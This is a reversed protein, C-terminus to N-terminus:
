ETGNLKAQEERSSMVATRWTGQVLGAKCYMSYILTTPQPQTQEQPLECSAVAARHLCEANHSQQQALEQVLLGELTHQSLGM